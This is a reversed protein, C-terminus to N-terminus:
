LGLGSVGPCLPGSGLFCATRRRWPARHRWRALRAGSSLLAATLLGRSSGSVLIRLLSSPPPPLRRFTCGWCGRATAVLQHQTQRRRQHTVAAAGASLRQAWWCYGRGRAMLARACVALMCCLRWLCLRRARCCRARHRRRGALGRVRRAYVRTDAASAGGAGGCAARAVIYVHSWLPRPWAAGGERPALRSRRASCCATTTVQRPASRRTTAWPSRQARALGCTSCATARLGPSPRRRRCADSCLRTPPRTWM